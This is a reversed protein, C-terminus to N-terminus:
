VPGRGNAVPMPRRPPKQFECKADTPNNLDYRAFITEKLYSEVDKWPTNNDVAQLLWAGVIVPDNAFGKKGQAVKDILWQPYLDQDSHYDGGNPMKVQELYNSVDKLVAYNLKGTASEVQQSVRCTHAGSWSDQIVHLMSGLAVDPTIQIRDEDNMGLRSFVTWIKVNDPEACVNLHMPPLGYEVEIERTLPMLPHREGIAVSYAFKMWNLARKTTVEVRENKAQDTSKIASLQTMFHLHQLSGYHSEHGLHNKAEPRCGQIDTDYSAQGQKLLKRSSLASFVFDWSQGWTRMLPDDNWWSGYILASTKHYKPYWGPSSEEEPIATPKVWPKEIMYQYKWGTQTKELADVKGRYLLISALTMHEHVASKFDEPLFTACMNVTRIKEEKLKGNELSLVRLCPSLKFAWACNTICFVLIVSILIKILPKSTQFEVELM